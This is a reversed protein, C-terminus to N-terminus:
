SRNPPSKLLVDKLAEQWPKLESSAELIPVPCHHQILKQLQRGYRVYLSPYTQAVERESPARGHDSEYSLVWEIFYEFQGKVGASKPLEGYEKYVGEKKCYNAAQEHTGRKAEVHARAGILQKAANIRKITKFAVYGQLHHTGAAGTEYGFVLYTSEDSEGLRELVSEDDVTWNNITFM